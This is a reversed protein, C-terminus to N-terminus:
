LQVYDGLTKDSLTFGAVNRQTGGSETQMEAYDEFSILSSWSLTTSAFAVVFDNDQEMGVQIPMSRTNHSSTLAHAYADDVAFTIESGGGSFEITNANESRLSAETATNVAGPVNRWMSYDDALLKFRSVRLSTESIDMDPYGGLVENLVNTVDAESLVVGLLEVVSYFLSVAYLSKLPYPVASILM